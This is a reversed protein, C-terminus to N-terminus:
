LWLGWCFSCTGWSGEDLDSMGSTDASALWLAWGLLQHSSSVDPLLYHHCERFCVLRHCQIKWTYEPCGMSSTARSMCALISFFSSYLYGMFAFALSFSLSGFLFRDVSIFFATLIVFILRGFLYLSGWPRKSGTVAEVFTETGEELATFTSFIKTSLPLVVFDPLLSSLLQAVFGSSDWVQCLSLLLLLCSGWAAPKRIHFWAHEGRGYLSGSFFVEILTWSRGKGSNNQITPLTPPTCYPYCM